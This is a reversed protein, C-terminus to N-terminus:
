GNKLLEPHDHLNGVVVFEGNSFVVAEELSEIAGNFKACTDCCNPNCVAFGGKIFCCVVPVKYRPSNVIDWEYIERDNKDKIGTYQGLTAPDVEYERDQKVLDFIAVYIYTAGHRIILSGVVWEGNDLRKGRFKIERSM